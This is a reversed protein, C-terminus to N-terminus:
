RHAYAKIAKKIRFAVMGHNASAAFLRLAMQQNLCAGMRKMWKPVIAIHLMSALEDVVADLGRWPDRPQADARPKWVSLGGANAQSTHRVFV